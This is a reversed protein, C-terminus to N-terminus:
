FNDLLKKFGKTLDLAIYVPSELIRKQEHVSTSAWQILAAEIVESRNYFENENQKLLKPDLRVSVLKKQQGINKRGAGARKGGHGLQGGELDLVSQKEKKM